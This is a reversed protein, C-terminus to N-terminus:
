KEKIMLNTHLGCETKNMGKWRSDRLDEGLDKLTCPECGISKYGQTELPHEPLKYKQRYDDIMEDDWDLIPHFRKARFQTDEFIDLNQRFKSQDKRVGNIWIDYEKLYPEMPETKNIHCCYDPDSVFYFHGDSDLQLNKPIISNVNILNLKLLRSIKNRFALTEPFHFGTNIFLVDFEVGSEKIIHLLPISHTQFSSSIFIRKGEKEFKKLHEIIENIKM